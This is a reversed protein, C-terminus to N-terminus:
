RDFGPPVNAFCEYWEKTAFKELRDYTYVGNQEQEVDTLQTYCWGAVLPHKNLAEMLGRLREFFEAETSPGEGYGWGDTGWGIGGFEDVIYPQGRYESAIRAVARFPNDKTGLERTLDEGSSAYRHVTYVDTQYHVGGSSSNVPRTPDLSHCLKYAEVHNLRHTRRSQVDWTENFPTWVIISPHNRLATITNALEAFFARTAPYSNFDLGWTPWEAWTLYGLRDAWYHFRDEFVKQHLRAGNFGAEMSLEIDKRFSEDDPSTWIGDPYFGQDLVLRQYVSQGNICIKGDRCSVSRIGTYSRVEDIIRNGERVRLQLGYLWPDGPWWLRADPVTVGVPVGHECPVRTTVLPDSFGTDEISQYVTIELETGPAVSLYQPIVTVEGSNPNTLIVFDDIGCPHVAELWVAQWIGTTRTYLCGYSAARKSQKGSTQNNTHIYDQVAVLLTAERGAQVFDTVDISFPDSGGTHSGAHIGNVYLDTHFDVGGFRLFVRHANWADPIEITRHYLLREQFDTNGIGSLRSEPAFPVIIEDEFPGEEPSAFEEVRDGYRHPADVVKFSWRGNLSLWSQREMQPRPHEKRPVSEEM